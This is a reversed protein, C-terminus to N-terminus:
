FARWYNEEEDVYLTIMKGCYRPDPLRLGTFEFQAYEWINIYNEQVAVPDAFVNKNICQLLFPEKYESTIKYSHNILGGTVPEILIDGPSHDPLDPEYNGFAALVEQAIKVKM